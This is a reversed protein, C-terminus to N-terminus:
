QCKEINKQISEWTLSVEKRKAEDLTALSANHKVAKELATAFAKMARLMRSRPKNLDAVIKAPRKYSAEIAAVMESESGKKGVEDAIAVIESISVSRLRQFMKAYAERVANLKLQEDPIRSLATSMGPKLDINMARARDFARVAVNLSKQSVGFMNAADVQSVGFRKHFDIARNIREDRPPQKGNKSNLLCGLYEFQIDTCDVVYVPIESTDPLLEKVANGRHNGGVIVYGKTTKRVVIMPITCRSEMGRKIAEKHDLDLYEDRAKNLKSAAWDIQRISISEHSCDLGLQEITEQAQVDPGWVVDVCEQTIM